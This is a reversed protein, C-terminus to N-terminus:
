TYMSLVCIYNKECKAQCKALHGTPNALHVPHIAQYQTFKWLLCINQWPTQLALEQAFEELCLSVHCCYCSGTCMACSITTPSRGPLPFSIQIYLINRWSLLFRDTPLPDLFMSVKISFLFEEPLKDHFASNVVSCEMKQTPKEWCWEVHNHQKKWQPHPFTMLRTRYLGPSPTVSWLRIYCKSMIINM